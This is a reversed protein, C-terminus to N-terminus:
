ASDLRSGCCLLNTSPLPSTNCSFSNKPHLPSPPRAVAPIYNIVKMTFDILNQLPKDIPESGAPSLSHIRRRRTRKTRRHYNYERTGVGRNRSGKCILLCRTSTDSSWIITGVIGQTKSYLSVCYAPIVWSTIDPPIQQHQFIHPHHDAQDLSSRHAPCLDELHELSNQSLVGHDAAPFDIVNDQAVITAGPLFYAGQASGQWAAEGRIIM